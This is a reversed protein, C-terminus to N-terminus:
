YCYDSSRYSDLFSAFFQYSFHLVSCYNDAIFNIINKEPNKPIYTCAMFINKKVIKPFKPIYFIEFIKSNYIKM